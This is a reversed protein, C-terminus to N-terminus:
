REGTKHVDVCNNILILRREEQDIKGTSGVKNVPCWWLCIQTEFNIIIFRLMMRRRVMMLMLIKWAEEDFINVTSALSLLFIRTVVLTLWDLETDAGSACLSGFWIQIVKNKWDGDSKRIWPQLPSSSQLVWKKWKSLILM